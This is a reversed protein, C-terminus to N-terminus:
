FTPKRRARFPFLKVTGLEDGIGVDSIVVTLQACIHGTRAFYIFHNKIILIRSMSRQVLVLHSYQGSM